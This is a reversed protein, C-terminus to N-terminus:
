QLNVNKEFREKLTKGKPNGLKAIENRANSIRQAKGPHTSLGGGGSSELRELFRVLGNPDYGAAAAIRVGTRDADLEARQDYGTRIVVTGLPEALADILGFDRGDAALSGFRKAMDKTAAAQVGIVGHHHLVHTLEHALVGALESEDEMVALAGTTVFIYGNPGAYANVEDSELVGFVWNGVPRPSADVLTLGVLSVYKSLKKDTTLQDTNTVSVAVTQGMGDEDQPTIIMQGAADLGINAGETLKQQGTVNGVAGLVQRRIDAGQGERCGLIAGTAVFAVAAGAGCALLFSKFHKTTKM